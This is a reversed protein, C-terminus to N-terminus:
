RARVGDPQRALRCKQDNCEAATEIRTNQEIRQNALPRTGRRARVHMPGIVPCQVGNMDMVSQLGGGIRPRIVTSREGLLPSDNALRQPNPDACPSSLLVTEFRCCSGCAVLRDSLARPHQPSSSNQSRVMGIVLELGQQHPECAAGAKIPKPANGIILGPRLTTLM